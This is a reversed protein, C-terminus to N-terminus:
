ERAGATVAVMMVNIDVKVLAEASRDIFFLESGHVAFAEPPRSMQWEHRFDEGAVSFRLGAELGRWYNSVVGYGSSFPSALGNVLAWRTAGVLEAIALPPAGPELAYLVADSADEDTKLSFYYTAPFEDVEDVYLGSVFGSGSALTQTEGSSLDHESLRYSPVYANEPAYSVEAVTLHDRTGALRVPDEVGPLSRWPGGERDRLLVSGSSVVATRSGAAMVDGQAVVDEEEFSGGHIPFSLLAPSDVLYLRSPSLALTEAVDFGGEALTTLSNDWRSLRQLLVRDSIRRSAAFYVFENTALLSGEPLWDASLISFPVCRSNACVGSCHSDCAGCHRADRQTDTECGNLRTRDCSQYRAGCEPAALEGGTGAAAQVAGGCAVVGDGCVDFHRCASALLLPLLLQLALERGPDRM